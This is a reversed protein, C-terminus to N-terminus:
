VQREVLGFLQRVMERRTECPQRKRFAMVARVMLAGAQPNVEFWEGSMRGSGMIDHTEAEVQRAIDRDAFAFLHAVSLKHPSGSQLSALRKKPNSTIGIKCVDAGSERGIVYVYCLKVVTNRAPTSDTYQGVDAM